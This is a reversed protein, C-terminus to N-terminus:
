VVNLYCEEDIKITLTKIQIELTLCEIIIKVELPIIVSLINVALLAIAGILLEKKFPKLYKRIINLKLNNM